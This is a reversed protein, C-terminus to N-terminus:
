MHTAEIWTALKETEVLAQWLRSRRGACIVDALVDLAPADPHARPVTHWGLLGRSLTEAELLPFDRRGRQVPEDVTLSPRRRRAGDIAGFHAEIREMAVAPEVDGALVLVAGDPRYHDRYFSVLDDVAIRAVDEPWGLVPNRYPHKLYSMMQH